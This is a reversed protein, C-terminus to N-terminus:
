EREARYREGLAKVEEWTQDSLWACVDSVKSATKAALSELAAVVPDIVLMGLVLCLAVGRVKWSGYRLLYLFMRGEKSM